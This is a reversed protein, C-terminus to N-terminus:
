SIIGTSKEDIGRSWNQNEKLSSGLGNSSKIFRAFGKIFSQSTPAEKKSVAQM